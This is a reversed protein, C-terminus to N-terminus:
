AAEIAAVSGSPLSEEGTAIRALRRRRVDWNFCRATNVEMVAIQETLYELDEVTNGLSRKAGDLKQSLLTIAQDHTYSLMVKAQMPFKASDMSELVDLPQPIPLLTSVGLWLYVVDSSRDIEAEAFLTDNLEFTVTQPKKKDGDGEGDGDGEEEDLDDESTQKGDRKRKLFEVMDLTKQIDPIKELLGKKRQTLNMEMYRYKAIAEQFQKLATEVEADPGGVHDEVNEIFPARPIGRPNSELKPADTSM